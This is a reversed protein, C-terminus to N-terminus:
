LAAHAMYQRATISFMHHKQSSFLIKKGEPQGGSTHPTWLVFSLCSVTTPLWMLGCSCAVQCVVKTCDSGIFQAQSKQSPRLSHLDSKDARKGSQKKWTSGTDQRRMINKWFPILMWVETKSSEMQQEMSM